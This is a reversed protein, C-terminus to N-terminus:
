CSDRWQSLIDKSAGRREKRTVARKRPQHRRRRARLRPKSRPPSSKVATSPMQPLAQAPEARHVAVPLPPMAKESRSWNRTTPDCIGRCGGSRTRSAGAAWRSSSSSANLNPSTFRRWRSLRARRRRLPRRTRKAGPLVSSGEGNWRNNCSLKSPKSTLRMWTRRSFLQQQTRRSSRCTLMTLRLLLQYCKLTSKPRPWM